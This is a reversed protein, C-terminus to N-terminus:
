SARVTLEHSWVDIQASTVFPAFKPRRDVYLRHSELLGREIAAALGEPRQRYSETTTDIMRYLKRTKEDDDRWLFGRRRNRAQEARISERAFQALEVMSLELVDRLRYFDLALLRRSRKVADPLLSQGLKVLSEVYPDITLLLEGSPEDAPLLVEAGRGVKEVYAVAGDVFAQMRFGCASRVVQGYISLRDALQPKTLRIIMNKTAQM